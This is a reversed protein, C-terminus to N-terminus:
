KIFSNTRINKNKANDFGFCVLLDENQFIITSHSTSIRDGGQGM